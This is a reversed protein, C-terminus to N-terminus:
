RGAEGDYEDWDGPEWIFREGMWEHDDGYDPVITLPVSPPAPFLRVLLRRLARRIRTM